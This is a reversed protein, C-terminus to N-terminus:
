EPPGTHFTLNSTINYFAVRTSPDLSIMHPMRSQQLRLTNRGLFPFVDTHIENHTQREGAALKVGDTYDDVSKGLGSMENWHVSAIPSFLTGFVM